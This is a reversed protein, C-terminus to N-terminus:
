GNNRVEENLEKLRKYQEDTGDLIAKQESTITFSFWGLLEITEEISDPKDYEYDWDVVRTNSYAHDIIHLAMDSCLPLDLGKVCELFSPDEYDLENVEEPTYPRYANLCLDMGEKIIFAFLEKAAQNESSKSVTAKKKAIEKGFDIISQIIKRCEGNLYEKINSRQAIAADHKIEEETKEEETEDEEEEDLRPRLIRFYYSQPSYLCTDDLRDIIEEPIKTKDNFQYSDIRYIETFEKSHNWWNNNIDEDAEELGLEKLQNIIRQMNRLKKEEEVARNVKWSIESADKAEKLIENRKEIDKVKELEYLADLTLQFTGDEECAKVLDMDLKAINLRHYITSESFGTKTKLDNVTGGLDLVMQFGRAQEWATLDNRQINEELMLAVQEKDDMEEIIRCPLQFLGAQKAAHYRRHGMLITYGEPHAIGDEEYGSIVTLNQMVGNKRISESLETIDGIDKRPNKPNDHLDEIDVMLLDDKLLTENM